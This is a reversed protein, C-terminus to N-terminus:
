IKLLRVKKFRFYGHYYKLGCRKTLKSEILYTVCKIANETKAAKLASLASKKKNLKLECETIAAYAYCNAEYEKNNTATFICHAVTSQVITKTDFAPIKWESIYLLSTDIM